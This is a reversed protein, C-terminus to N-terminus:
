SDGLNFHTLGMSGGAGSIILNTPLRGESDQSIDSDNEPQVSATNRTTCELFENLKGGDLIEFGVYFKNRVVHGNRGPLYQM